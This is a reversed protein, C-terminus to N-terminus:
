FPEEINENNSNTQFAKVLALAIEDNRKDINQITVEAGEIGVQESLDNATLVNIWLNCITHDSNLCNTCGSIDEIEFDVEHLSIKNALVDVMISYHPCKQLENKNM